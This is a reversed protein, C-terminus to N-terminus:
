AAKPFATLSPHLRLITISLLTEQLSKAGHFYQKTITFCSYENRPPMKWHSGRRM